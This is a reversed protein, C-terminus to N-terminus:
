RDPGVVARAHEVTLDDQGVHVGDAGSLYAVDPRDNVFFTAGEKRGMNVLVTATELMERAALSKARSQLLRVGAGMLQEAIGKAPERIRAADLIVYLRPMVLRM